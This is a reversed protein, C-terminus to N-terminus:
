SGILGTLLLVKNYNQNQVNNKKKKKKKKKENKPLASLSPFYSDNV